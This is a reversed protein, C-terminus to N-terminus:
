ILGFEVMIEDRTKGIKQMELADHIIRCAYSKVYETLDSDECGCSSLEDRDPCYSMFEQEVAIRKYLTLKSREYMQCEDPTNFPTGDNAVYTTITQTQVKM